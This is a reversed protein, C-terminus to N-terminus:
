VWGERWVMVGVGAGGIGYGVLWAYGVGAIGFWLMKSPMAQASLVYLRSTARPEIPAGPPFQQLHEPAQAM